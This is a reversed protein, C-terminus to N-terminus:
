PGDVPLVVHFTSGMAPASTVDIRGGHLEVIERSFVLGLGTGRKGEGVQSFRRFLRDLKDAPIGEGTDRVDIQVAPGRGALVATRALITVSGGPPTFKMANSVLNALVQLLRDRDGRVAPLSVELERTLVIGKEEASGEFAELSEEILGAVELPQATLRMMGADIKQLDLYNTVLRSLRDAERNIVDLYHRIRAPELSQYDDYLIEAFSKISTLPTRVDHSVMSILDSKEEDMRRAQRLEEEMRAKAAVEAFLAANEIAIAAYNAFAMLFEQDDRAFTVVSARTDVYIVGMVSGRRDVLPVCLASRINLDVVSKMERFREDEQADTTVVPKGSRAVSLAIGTSFERTEGARAGSPGAGDGMNIAARRSFADSSADYLTLFGREACVVKVALDLVIELLDGRDYSSNIVKGVEYLTQMMMRAREVRVLNQRLSELRADVLSFCQGLIHPDAGPKGVTHRLSVLADQLEAVMASGRLGADSAARPSSATRDFVGELPAAPLDVFSYLSDGVRIIDGDKLASEAVRRHNVFLGMSSGDDRISFGEPNKLISAHHRSVRLDLSVIDNDNGRGISVHDKELPHVIQRGANDLFVLCAMEPM